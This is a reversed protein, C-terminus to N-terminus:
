QLFVASANLGRPEIVVEHFWSIGRFDFPYQFHEILHHFKGAPGFLEGRQRDLVSPQVDGVCGDSVRIM